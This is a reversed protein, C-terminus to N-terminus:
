AWLNHAWVFLCLVITGICIGDRNGQSCRSWVNESWRPFLAIWIALGVILFSFPHYRWADAIHGHTLSLCARTMGCGPCPIDTVFFFVCPISAVESLSVDSLAVCLGAVGLGILFFRAVATVSVM